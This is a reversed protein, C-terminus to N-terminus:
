SRGHIFRDGRFAPLASALISAVREVGSGPAGALFAVAPADAVPEVIPPLVPGPTTPEPLPLSRSAADAHLGVWNAIAAERHGARLQTHALWDRLEYQAELDQTQSMLSQIHAFAAEPDRAVLRDVIRMQASRHGPVLAVIRRAMAEAGEGDRRVGLLAMNAELAPVSEPMQALWRGAVDLAQPDSADEVALRAQWLPAVQPSTALAAEFVSRAQDRDGSRRLAEYLAELTRTDDPQAALALRLQPLAREPRGAMLELEGALRRLAPTAGDG